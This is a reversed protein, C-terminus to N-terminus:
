KGPDLPTPFQWNNMLNLLLSFSKIDRDSLVNLCMCSCEFNVYILQLVKAM